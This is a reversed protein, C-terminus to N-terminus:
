PKKWFLINKLNMLIGKKIDMHRRCETLYTDFRIKIDASKM